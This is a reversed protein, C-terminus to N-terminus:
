IWEEGLEVDDKCDRQYAELLCSTFVDRLLYRLMKIGYGGLSEKGDGLCIPKQIDKESGAKKNGSGAM